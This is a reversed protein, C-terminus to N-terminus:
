IPIDGEMHGARVIATHSGLPIEIDWYTSTSSYPLLYLSKQGKSVGDILLEVIVDGSVSGINRVTATIRIREENVTVSGGNSVSYVKGSTYEKIEIKEIRGKLTAM